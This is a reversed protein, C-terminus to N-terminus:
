VVNLVEDEKERRRHNWMERAREKVGAVEESALVKSELLEDWVVSQEHGTRRLTYLAWAFIELSPTAADGRGTNTSQDQSAAFSRSKLERRERVAQRVIIRVTTPGLKQFRGYMAVVPQRSDKGSDTPIPISARPLKDAEIADRLFRPMSPPPATSDNVVDREEEVTANENHENEGDADDRKNESETPTHFKDTIAFKDVLARAAESGQTIAVAELMDNFATVGLTFNFHKPL